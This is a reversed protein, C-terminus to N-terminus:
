SKFQGNNLKLHHSICSLLLERKVPKSLYDDCGLEWAKKEGESSAYATQIIIQIDPNQKRMLSILQSCSMQIHHLDMIVLDIHQLACIEVAHKDNKAQIVDFETDPIIEKLYIANFEDEIILIKVDRHTSKNETREDVDIKELYNNKLAFPITFYFTSGEGQVSELWIHGGMLDLLGSVISLGLGTGGYLRSNEHGVQTFRSFIEKHKEKPVGIGTDLVYFNFENQNGISCGLEIKGSQTFKFANGILNVLIQKLKNRDILINLTGTSNDVNLQFSVNPNSFRNQYGDFLTKIETFLDNMNCEEPNLVLQGSEIRAIDLIDNIINLLDMGRQKIINAFKNLRERDDFHEPLLDAFGLIANMPTRIEHSMNQLFATKLRDSEEAKEKATILEKEFIKRETIDRVIGQMRGDAFMKGSIEVAFVSGDKRKLIRESIVINGTQLEKTKIPIEEINEKQIVDKINMELLEDRSYGLMKCGSENVELYNGNNDAIFIGDSAHEFLTRFKNESEEATEHARILDDHTQKLESIDICVALVGTHNSEDDYLPYVTLMATFHEGTSRQLIIEKKRSWEIENLDNRIGPFVAKQNTSQFSALPRGLVETAPIEFMKEAGHSFSQIIFSESLDVSIFAVDVAANYVSLLKQENVRLAAEFIKRDRIEQKLARNAEILEETRAKYRQDLDRNVKTLVGFIFINEIRESALHVIQQLLLRLRPFRNEFKGEDIFLFFRNSITKSYCPVILACPQVFPHNQIEFTFGASEFEDENLILFGDEFPKQVVGSSISIKVDSKLINAFSIYIGEVQFGKASQVLCACFPINKLISIRELIQDILEVTDDTHHIIEAALGFLLNDEASESLASNEAELVEIKSKLNHKHEKISM